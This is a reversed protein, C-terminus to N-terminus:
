SLAALRYAETHMQAIARCVANIARLDREAAQARMAPGVGACFSRAEALLM